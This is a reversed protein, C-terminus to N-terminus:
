PTVETAAPGRRKARRARRGSALFGALFVAFVLVLLIAAYVAGRPYNLLMLTQERIYISLVGVRGGGLLTPTTFAGATLAFVLLLPAILGRATIPLTVRFFTYPRSAGMGYSAQLLQPSVSEVIPIIGLVAYPILLHVMGITVGTFSGYLTVPTDVVHLALLVDNVMGSDGLLVRWGLARVVGSMFMSSVVIVFMARALRPGARVIAIALPYSVLATIVAVIASLRLTTLIGKRLFPDSLVDTYNRLTPGGGSRAQGQYEEFSLRLFQVEPWVFFVILFLAAPLLVPYWRRTNM